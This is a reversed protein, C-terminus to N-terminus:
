IAELFDGIKAKVARTIKLATQPCTPTDKGLAELCTESGYDVQIGLGPIALFRGAGHFDELAMGLKERVVNIHALRTPFIVVEEGAAAFKGEFLGDQHYLSQKPIYICVKISNKADDPHQLAEVVVDTSLPVGDFPPM